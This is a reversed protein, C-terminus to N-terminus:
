QPVIATASRDELGDGPAVPPGPVGGAALSAVIRMAPRANVGDLTVIVTPPWTVQSVVVGAVM